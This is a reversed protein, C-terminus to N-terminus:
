KKLKLNIKQFLSLQKVQIDYLAKIQEGLLLDMKQHLGRIGV